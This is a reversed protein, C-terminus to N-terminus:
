APRQPLPATPARRRSLLRRLQASLWPVFFAWQLVILALVVAAYARALLIGTNFQSFGSAFPAFALEAVIVPLVNLIAAAFVLYSCVPSFDAHRFRGAMHPVPGPPSRTISTKGGPLEEVVTPREPLARVAPGTLYPLVFLM